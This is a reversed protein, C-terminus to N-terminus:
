RDAPVDRAVRFGINDNRTTPREGIRYASRANWAQFFFSGGRIVRDEGNDPSPHSAGAGTLLLDAYPRYWDWCWEWVNGHMDAFGWANRAKMGVPQCSGANCWAHDNIMGHDDGFSWKTTTEARCTYEWEAETPLRYGAGGAVSVQEGEVLYYPQLGEQKSLANCFDIADFWSVNSVPHRGSNATSHSFQGCVLEYEIQTCPCAGLFFETTIEVPHRPKEDDDAEQDAQPSGMWFEGIPVKVFEMGISNTIRPLTTAPIELRRPSEPQPRDTEDLRRRKIGFRNSESRELLEELVTVLRSIHQESDRGSRVEACNLYSLERLAPPLDAEGPMKADEVVVPIIPIKASMATMIELRVYDNPDDLRRRGDQEALWWNGIVVLLADASELATVLYRRFDAGIPIGKVDIFATGKGFHQDVHQAIFQAPYASDARRYSVFFRAM